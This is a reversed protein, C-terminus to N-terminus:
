QSFKCLAPEGDPSGLDVFIWQWAARPTCQSAAPGVESTSLISRWSWGPEIRAGITSYALGAPEQMTGLLFYGGIGL